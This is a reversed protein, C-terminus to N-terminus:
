ACFMQWTLKILHQGNWYYYEAPDCWPTYEPNDPDNNVINTIILSSTLKYKQAGCTTLSGVIKGSRASLLVLNVCATGCGIEVITMDGSFNPGKVAGENIKTRYTWYGSSTFNVKAPPGVFTSRVPYETFSPPKTHEAANVSDISVIPLALTIFCFYYFYKKM